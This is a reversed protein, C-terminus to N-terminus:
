AGGAPLVRFSFVPWSRVNGSGDDGVFYALYVAATDLDTALWTRKVTGATASVITAAATVASAAVGRRWYRLTITYGTIDVPTAGDTDLLTDTLEPLEDGVRYTARLSTTM